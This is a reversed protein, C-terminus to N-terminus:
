QVKDSKHQCSNLNEDKIDSEYSFPNEPIKLIIEREESNFSYHVKYKNEKKFIPNFKFYWRCRCSNENRGVYKAAESWNINTSMFVFYVLRDDETQEWYYQSSNSNICKFNNGRIRQIVRVVVQSCNLLKLSCLAVDDGIFNGIFWLDLILIIKQYEEQDEPLISEYFKHIVDSNQFRGALLEPVPPSKLM